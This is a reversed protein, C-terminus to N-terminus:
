ATPWKKGKKKGHVERTGLDRCWLQEPCHQSLVANSLFLFHCETKNPALKLARVDSLMVAQAPTLTAQAAQSAAQQQGLGTPGPCSKKGM